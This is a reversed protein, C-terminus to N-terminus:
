QSTASRFRIAITQRVHSTPDTYLIETFLLDVGFETFHQAPLHVMGAPNDHLIMGSDAYAVNAGGRGAVRAGLPDRIVGNAYALQACAGVLLVTVIHKLSVIAGRTSRGRPVTKSQGGNM